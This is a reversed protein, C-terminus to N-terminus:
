KKQELAVLTERAKQALPNQAHDTVLQQLTARAQQHRGWSAYLKGLIYLLKADYEPHRGLGLGDKLSAEAEAYREDSKRMAGLLLRTRKREDLPRAKDIVAARYLLEQSEAYADQEFLHTGLATLAAVDRGDKELADEWAMVKEAIERAAEMTRPFQGPGQFGNLRLLPRGHPSLFAITPLSTVDYRVAIAAGKPDGETDVKVPVFEEALKVVTPDVYTTQDLRHCWGCWEAWFDVMIPKRAAKAKKLANPFQKEWRIGAPAPGHGPGTLELAEGFPMEWRVAPMQTALALALGVAMSM